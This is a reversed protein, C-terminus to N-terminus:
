EHWVDLDAPALQALAEPDAYRWAEDRTTPLVALESMAGVKRPNPERPSASVRLLVPTRASIAPGASFRPDRRLRKKDRDKPNARRNASSLRTRRCSSEAFEAIEARIRIDADGR